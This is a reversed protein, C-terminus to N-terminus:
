CIRWSFKALMCLADVLGCSKCIWARGAEAGPASPGARLRLGIPGGGGLSSVGAAACISAGADFAARAPLSEVWLVTDPEGTFPPYM